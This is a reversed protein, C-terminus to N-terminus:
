KYFKHKHDPLNTNKEELYKIKRNHHLYIERMETELKSHIDHEIIDWIQGWKQQFQGSPLV